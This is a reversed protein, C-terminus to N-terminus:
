PDERYFDKNDNGRGDVQVDRLINTGEYCCNSARVAVAFEVNGQLRQNYVLFLKGKFKRNRYSARVPISLFSQINSVFNVSFSSLPSKLWHLRHWYM